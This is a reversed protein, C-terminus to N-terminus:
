AQAPSVYRGVVVRAPRIVREGTAYGARQESLVQGDEEPTAVMEADVAEALNPDFPSGILSLREVGESALRKLANDRVMRIGHALPTVEGPDLELARDLEDVLDIVIIWSEGRAVELMRDRERTLRRRFDERDTELERYARALADVRQRAHNLEATLAEVRADGEAPSDSRPPTDPSEFLDTM